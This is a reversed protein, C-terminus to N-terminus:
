NLSLVITEKSRMAHIVRKGIVNDLKMKIKAKKSVSATLLFKDEIYVDMLKNAFHEPVIFEIATNSVKVEYKIPKLSLEKKGVEKLENVDISLGLEKEIKEINKGQKGIIDGICRDPVFVKVRKNSEFEIMLEDSFQRFYEEIQKRALKQIPADMEKKEAFLKIPIVVTEEGYSYIEYELVDTEFDRVTVVPRALDKETMGTPTKVEMLLKLVKEIGGNRIFVVTDIVQPIVGLEIRGIFRQISDVPNTGHVVGVMGVGSLRLDAYLRFDDTNRMEDFFTYDPRTLLLIDHIEESSGHSIAYQTVEQPLVLDRPAEVTKVIKGLGAYFEAVSQAFTSKGQGPPGAILIGEAQEKIRTVMRESLKYDELSLKKVPRIATIEWGDSFPPKTIVIRFNSLQVITSGEREIELYGDSRGNAEEIIERSLDKIEEHGLINKSIEEFKWDGPRGKKAFPKVGEKLHISMTFEDFFKELKITKGKKKHVFECKIGKAFAVKSQVRDSTLLLADESYAMDRIVADIEGYSKANIKEFTGVRKGVFRVTINKKDCYERANEIEKLGIFGTQRNLNAQYELEQMTAEHILLENINLKDIYEILVGEIIVSTDPILRNDM